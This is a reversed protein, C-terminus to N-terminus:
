ERSAFFNNLAFRKAEEFQSRPVRLAVFLPRRPAHQDKHIELSWTPFKERADEFGDLMRPLSSGHEYGPRVILQVFDFEINPLKAAELRAPARLVNWRERVEHMKHHNWALVYIRQRMGHTHDLSFVIDDELASAVYRAEQQGGPVKFREV